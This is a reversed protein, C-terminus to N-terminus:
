RGGAQAQMRRLLYAGLCSLDPPVPGAGSKEFSRDPARRIPPTQQAAPSALASVAGSGGGWQGSVSAPSLGWEAVPDDAVSALRAPRRPPSPTSRAHVAAAALAPAGAALPSAHAPDSTSTSPGWM